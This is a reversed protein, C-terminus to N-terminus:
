IGGGIHDSRGVGCGTGSGHSKRDPNQGNGNGINRNCHGGYFGWNEGGNFNRKRLPDFDVRCIGIYRIMDETSHGQLPAHSLTCSRICEGKTHYRLCIDMGDESFPFILKESRAAATIDGLKEMIWLQPDVGINHISDQGGVGISLRYGRGHGDPKRQREEKPTPHYRWSQTTTLWEGREVKKQLGGIEPLAGSEVDKISTTNCSHLFVRVRKHIRNILDAGFLPDKAFAKNYQSEFHDIHHPWTRM